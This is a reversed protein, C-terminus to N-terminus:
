GCLDDNWRSENVVVAVYLEDTFWRRCALDLLLPLVLTCCWLSRLDYSVLGLKHVHLRALRQM